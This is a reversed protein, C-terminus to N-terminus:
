MPTSGRRVVVGCHAGFSLMRGGRGGFCPRFVLSSVMFVECLVRSLGLLAESSSFFLCVFLVLCFM